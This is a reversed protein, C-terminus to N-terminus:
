FLLSLILKLISYLLVLLVNKVEVLSLTHVLILKDPTEQM